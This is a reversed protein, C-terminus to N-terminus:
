CVFDSPFFTQVKLFGSLYEELLISAGMGGPVGDGLLSNPKKNLEIKNGLPVSDAVRAQKEVSQIVM